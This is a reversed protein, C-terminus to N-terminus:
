VRSKQVSLEGMDTIRTLAVFQVISHLSKFSHLHTRKVTSYHRKVFDIKLGSFHKLERLNMRLISHFEFTSSMFQFFIHRQNWIQFFKTLLISCLWFRIYGSKKFIVTLCFRIPETVSWVITHDSKIM